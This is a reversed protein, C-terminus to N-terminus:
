TIFDGVQPLGVVRGSEAQVARSAPSKELSLHTRLPEYYEFYSDFRKLPGNANIWVSSAGVLSASWAREAM